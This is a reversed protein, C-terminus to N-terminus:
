VLGTHVALQHRTRESVQSLRLHQADNLFHANFATIHNIYCSSSIWKSVESTDFTVHTFSLNVYGQLLLSEAAERM